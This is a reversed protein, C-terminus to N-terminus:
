TSVIQLDGPYRQLWEEVNKIQRLRQYHNRRPDNESIGSHDPYIVSCAIAILKYESTNALSPNHSRFLNEYEPDSHNQVTGLPSDNAEAPTAAYKLRLRRCQNKRGARNRTPM